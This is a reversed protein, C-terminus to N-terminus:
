DDAWAKRPQFERLAPILASRAWVAVSFYLSMWVAESKRDEWRAHCRGAVDHVGAAISKYHGM